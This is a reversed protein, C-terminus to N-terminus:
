PWREVAVSEERLTPWRMERPSPKAWIPLAQSFPPQGGCKTKLNNEVKEITGAMKGTNGEGGVTRDPEAKRGIGIKDEANGGAMKRRRSGREVFGKGSAAGEEAFIEADGVGMGQFDNTAPLM